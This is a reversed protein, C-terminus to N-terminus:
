RAFVIAMHNILADYSIFKTEKDPKLYSKCMKLFVKSSWRKGYILITADKSLTLETSVPIPV